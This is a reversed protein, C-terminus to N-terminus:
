TCPGLTIGKLGAYQDCFTIEDFLHDWIKRDSEFHPGFREACRSCTHNQETIPSVVTIRPLNPHENRNTGRCILYGVNLFKDAILKFVVEVAQIICIRGVHPSDLAEMQALGSSDSYDADLPIDGVQTSNGRLTVAHVLVPVTSLIRHSRSTFFMPAAYM